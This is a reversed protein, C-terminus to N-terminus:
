DLQLVTAAAKSFEQHDSFTTILARHGAPPWASTTYGQHQYQPWSPKIDKTMTMM